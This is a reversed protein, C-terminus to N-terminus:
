SHKLTLETLLQQTESKRLEEVIFAAKNIVDRKAKNLAALSGKTNCMLILQDEVLNLSHLFEDLWPDNLLIESFSNKKMEDQFLHKFGRGTPEFRIQKPKTM